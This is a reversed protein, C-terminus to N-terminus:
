FRSEHICEICNPADTVPIAAYFNSPTHPNDIWNFYRCCETIGQQTPRGQDDNAHPEDLMIHVLGDSMKKVRPSNVYHYRM